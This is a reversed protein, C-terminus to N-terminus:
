EGLFLRNIELEVREVLPDLANIKLKKFIEEVLSPYAVMLRQFLMFDPDLNVDASSTRGEAVAMLSGVLKGLVSLLQLFYDRYDCLLKPPELRELASLSKMLEADLERLRELFEADSSPEELQTIVAEIRLIPELALMIEELGGYVVELEAVAEMVAASYEEVSKELEELGCPYAFATLEDLSAKLESCASRGSDIGALVDELFQANEFDFRELADLFATTKTLRSSGRRFANDIREVEERSTPGGCCNIPSLVANVMIILALLFPATGVRMCKRAVM